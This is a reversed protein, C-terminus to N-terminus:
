ATKAAIKRRHWKHLVVTTTITQKPLLDALQSADFTTAGEVSVSYIGPLKHQFLCQGKKDTQVKYVVLNEEYLYGRPVDCLVSEIHVWAGPFPQGAENKVLCRISASFYRDPVYQSAPPRACLLIVAMLLSLLSFVLAAKRFANM